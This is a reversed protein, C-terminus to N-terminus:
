PLLLKQGCLIDNPNTINNQVCIQEIMDYTGYHAYAISRLTDGERVIYQKMESTGIEESMKTMEEEQETVSENIEQTEGMDVTTQEVVEEIEARMQEKENGGLGMVEMSDSMVTIVYALNEEVNKLKYYQNMSVIVCAMVCVVFSLGFVNMVKWLFSIKVEERNYNQVVRTYRIAEDDEVCKKMGLRERNWGVMYNQMEENQSYYIYFDEKKIKKKDQTTFNVCIDQKVGQEIWGKGLFTHAAFYDQKSLEKTALMAGSIMYVEVDNRYIRTGYFEVRCGQQANEELIRRMFTYVYDEFYLIEEGTPEGIVRTNVPIESM